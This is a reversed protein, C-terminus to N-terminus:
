IRRRCIGFGLFWNSIPKSSQTHVWAIALHNAFVKPHRRCAGEAINAPISVAARRIQNVLAFREAAPFKTTTYYCDEVLTMAMQWVELNKYAANM